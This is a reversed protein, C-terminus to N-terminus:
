LLKTERSPFTLLRTTTALKQRLQWYKSSKGLRVKVNAEALIGNEIAFHLSAEGETVFSIMAQGAPTDPILRALVAARRMQAQEKGGWGNPHSLVYDISRQVSNWLTPGNAHTEQIYKTACQFLYRLFDAIVDVVSKGPPLRPIHSNM